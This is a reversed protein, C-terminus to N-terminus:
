LLGFETHREIHTVGYMCHFCVRTDPREREDRALSRSTNLDRTQPTILIVLGRTQGVFSALGLLYVSIASENVYRHELAM